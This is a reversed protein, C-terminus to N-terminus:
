ITTEESHTERGGTAALMIDTESAGAPLEAVLRGEHMVLIRDSMGIIEPLESSIMLIAAGNKALDRLLNHIGAKASVDIGRTPEDFILINAGSALWRALIAKQQNGGSLYRIQTEYSPARLDVRRGLEAVSPTGRVGDRYNISFVGRLARFALLVNDRISQSPLIGERKRDETLFGIGCRIADMPSDLRVARGNVEVSGSTFPEVGFLAKALETRGSGQLGAVGVVEGRRLELNIGKLRANSGNVVRLAVERVDSSSAKPPYYENLERGVMMRVVDNPTVDCTQVTKVVNGDKLVTIRQTLDFIERLRHSIYIVALNREVTLNRILNFLIEVETESLASTPEDMVLVRSDLSLARVIEVIQQQAVSLDRVYVEPSIMHHVDLQQLLAMTQANMQRYDVLGHRLPERGLFVNEAVTRDPLLNFEQYIISLGKRQAEQPHSFTVREDGLYIEGEDPQYAGVLIKMLTSKGAGNEGVLGHIEGPYVELSVQNLAVVGPFRKTIGTMRVIPKKDGNVNASANMDVEM